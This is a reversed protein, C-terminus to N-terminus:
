VGGGVSFFFFFNSVRRGSHSLLRNSRFREPVGENRGRIRFFLYYFISKIHFLEGTGYGLMARGENWVKQQLKQLGIRYVMHICVSHQINTAGNQFVSHSINSVTRTTVARGESSTKITRAMFLVGGGGGRVNQNKLRDHRGGKGNEQKETEPEDTHDVSSALVVIRLTTGCKLM